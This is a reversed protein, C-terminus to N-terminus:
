GAMGIGGAVTTGVLLMALMGTKTALLGGGGAGAGIGGAGVTGGGAGGGFLRALFGGRKKDREPEKNVEPKIEPMQAM